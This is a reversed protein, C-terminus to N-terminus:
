LGRHCQRRPRHQGRGDPRLYGPFTVDITLPNEASDLWTAWHGAADTLLTWSAGSSGTIVVQAEELPAPNSDCYGLGTVTGEIRGWSAPAEVNMAVPVTVKPEGKVTLTAMYTGPQTVGAAPSADFLINVGLSSDAPVSGSVPDEALWLVDGGGGEMSNAIVQKLFAYDSPDSWYSSYVSDIYWIFNGGLQKQFFAPWGEGNVGVTEADPDTVRIQYYGGYYGVYNYSDPLGAALPHGPDVLTWQPPNTVMWCYDGTNNLVIYDNMGQAFPQYCTGGLFILNKGEDLVDTRLKQIDAVEALGGDMAVLVIDYPGFDIGTWPSGYYIDYAYGLETLALEVSGTTDTTTILLINNANIRSEFPQIKADSSAGQPTVPQGVPKPAPQAGLLPM